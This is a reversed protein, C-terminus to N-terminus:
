AGSLITWSPSEHKKYNLTEGSVITKPSLIDSIGGKMPFFNLMNVVNLVIHIM